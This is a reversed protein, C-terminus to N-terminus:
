VISNSQLNVFEYVGARRSDPRPRSPALLHGFSGTGARRTRRRPMLSPSAPIHYVDPETPYCPGTKKASEKCMKRLPIVPEIRSEGESAVNKYRRLYRKRVMLAMNSEIEDEYVLYDLFSSICSLHNEVTANALKREEQLVRLYDRIANKDIGQVDDISRQGLYRFFDRLNSAYSTVTSPTM